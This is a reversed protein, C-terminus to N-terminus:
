IEGLEQALYYFLRSRWKKYTAEGADIPYPTDRCINDIVGQKYEPPIKKVAYEIALCEYFLISEKKLDEECKNRIRDYDRVLYLMRKRLNHPLLYPNNKKRQYDRL